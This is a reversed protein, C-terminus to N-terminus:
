ASTTREAKFLVKRKLLDDEMFFGDVLTWSQGPTIILKGKTANAYQLLSSNTRTAIGRKLFIGALNNKSKGTGRKGKFQEDRTQVRCCM